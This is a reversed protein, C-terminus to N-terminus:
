RFFALVDQMTWQAHGRQCLGDVLPHMERPIVQKFEVCGDRIVDYSVLMKEMDKRAFMGAIVALYRHMDNAVWTIKAIADFEDKAIANGLDGVKARLSLPSRSTDHFLFINRLAM